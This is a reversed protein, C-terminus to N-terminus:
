INLFAYKKNLVANKKFFLFQYKVENLGFLGNNKREFDPM